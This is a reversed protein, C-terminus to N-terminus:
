LSNDWEVINPKDTLINRYLKDYHIPPPLPLVLPISNNSQLQEMEYKLKLDSVHQM